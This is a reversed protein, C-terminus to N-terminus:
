GGVWVCEEGLVPVGEEAKVVVVEVGPLVANWVKPIAEVVVEEEV